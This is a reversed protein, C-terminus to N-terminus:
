GRFAGMYVLVQANRPASAGAAPTQEVITGAETQDAVSRKLLILRLGAANLARLADPVTKGAVDPVDEAPKDGPGSSVSLTVHAGTTATAGAAPFQATVTGLPETGPVYQVSARLGQEALQQVAGKVQGGGGALDPVAATPPPAPAPAPEKAPKARHKPAKPKPEHKQKAKPNAPHPAPAKAHKVPRVKAPRPAPAAPASRGRVATTVVVISTAAPAKRGHDRSVLWAAVLGGALLLIALLALLGWGLRDGPEPGMPDPATIVETTTVTTPAPPSVVRTEVLEEDLVVHSSRPWGDLDDITMRVGKESEGSKL